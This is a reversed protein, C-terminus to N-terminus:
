VFLWNCSAPWLDVGSHAPCRGAGAAPDLGARAAGRVSADLIRRRIATTTPLGGAGSDPKGHLGAGGTRYRARSGGAPALVALALPAGRDRPFCNPTHRSTVGPPKRTPPFRETSLRTRWPRSSE